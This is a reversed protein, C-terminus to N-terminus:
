GQNAAKEPPKEEGKMGMEGRQKPDTDTEPVEGRIDM